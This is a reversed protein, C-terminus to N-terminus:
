FVRWLSMHHEFLEGVKPGMRQTVPYWDDKVPTPTGFARVLNPPLVLMCCIRCCFLSLVAGTTLGWASAPSVAFATSERKQYRSQHEEDVEEKM